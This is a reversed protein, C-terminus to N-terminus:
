SALELRNCVAARDLGLDLSPGDAPSRSMRFTSNLISRKLGFLLGPAAIRIQLRRGAQPSRGASNDDRSHHSRDFQFRISQEPPNQTRGFLTDTTCGVARQFWIVSGVMHIKM